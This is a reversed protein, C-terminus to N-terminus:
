SRIAAELEMFATLIENARVVFRRGDDRRADAIRISPSHNDGHGSSLFIAGRTDERLSARHLCVYIALQIRSLSFLRLM